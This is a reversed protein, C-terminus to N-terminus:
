TKKVPKKIQKLRKLHALRREYFRHLSSVATPDLGNNRRSFQKTVQRVGALRLEVGTREKDFREFFEKSSLGKRIDGRGVGQDHLEKLAALRYHARELLFQTERLDALLESIEAKEKEVEAGSGGVGKKEEASWKALIEKKEKLAAFETEFEDSLADYRQAEKQIVEAARAKLFEARETEWKKLFADVDVGKFEVTGLPQGLKKEVAHEPTAHFEKGNEDTIVVDGTRCTVLADGTPPVTVTFETGRVGMVASETHVMLDQTASLKSVTLSIKGSMLGVFSQQRSGASSLEFSFQTHPSVKITAGASRPTTISVEALGDPGTRVMDYNLIELGTQVASPDLNQGDRQVSVTGELYSTDGVKDPSVPKAGGLIFLGAALLLPMARFLMTRSM